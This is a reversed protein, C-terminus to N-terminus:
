ESIKFPDYGDEPAEQNPDRRIADQEFTSLAQFALRKEIESKPIKRVIEAAGETDGKSLREVMESLPGRPVIDMLHLGDHFPNPKKPPPVAYKEFNGTLEYAEREEDTFEMEAERAEDYAEEDARQRYLEWIERVSQRTEADVGTVRGSVIGDVTEEFKTVFEDLRPDSRGASLIDLMRALEEIRDDVSWQQPFERELVRVIEHNM